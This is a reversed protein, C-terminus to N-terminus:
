QDALISSTEKHDRSETSGALTQHKRMTIEFIFLLSNMEVNELVFCVFRSFPIFKCVDVNHIKFSCVNRLDGLGGGGWWHVLKIHWEYM